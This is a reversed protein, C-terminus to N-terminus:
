CLLAGGWFTLFGGIPCVFCVACVLHIKTIIITTIIVMVFHKLRSFFDNEKSAEKKAPFFNM